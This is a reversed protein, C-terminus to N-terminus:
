EKLEKLKSIINLKTAEPDPIMILGTFYEEMVEIAQDLLLNKESSIFTKFDEVVEDCEELPIFDDRTMTNVNWAEWVRTCAYHGQLLDLLQEDFRENTNTMFYIRNITNGSCRDNTNITGM